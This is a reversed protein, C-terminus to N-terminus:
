ESTSDSPVETAEQAAPKEVAASQAAVVAAAIQALVEPSLQNAPQNPQPVSSSSIVKEQSLAAPTEEVGVVGGANEAPTIPLETAGSADTRVVEDIITQAGEGGVPGVEPALETRVAMVVRTAPVILTATGDGVEKVEAYAVTSGEILVEVKDGVNM